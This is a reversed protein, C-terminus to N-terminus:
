WFEGKVATSWFIIRFNPRISSNQFFNKTPQAWLPCKEVYISISHTKKHYKIWWIPRETSLLNRRFIEEVLFHGPIEKQHEYDNADSVLHAQGFIYPDAHLNHQVDTAVCAILQLPTREYFCKLVFRINSGTRSVITSFHKIWSDQSM